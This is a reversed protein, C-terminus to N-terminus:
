FPLDSEEEVEPPTQDINEQTPEQNMNDGCLELKWAELNTFYSTKDDKEWKRCKINFSVNVTDGVKYSEIKPCNDQTMQFKIVETYDGDKTELIFERKSFTDTIQQTQFIEVLKGELEYDM